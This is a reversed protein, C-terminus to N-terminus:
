CYHDAEEPGWPLYEVQLTPSSLSIPEVGPNPLDGPPPCPLGNWYEQWSFEMSLPAEERTTWFYFIQRCHLLGPHLVQTLFLGHILDHCGVRTSKGLPDWPCLLSALQLGYYWVSNSVASTVLFCCCCFLSAPRQGHTWLSDSIVSSSFIFDYNIITM